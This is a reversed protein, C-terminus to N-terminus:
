VQLALWGLSILEVSVATRKMRAMRAIMTQTVSGTKQSACTITAPSPPPRALPRRPMHPATKSMVAM